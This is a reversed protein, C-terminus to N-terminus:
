RRIGLSKTFVVEDHHLPLMKLKPLCVRQTQLRARWSSTRPRRLHDKASHKWGPSSPVGPFTDFCLCFVHMVELVIDCVRCTEIDRVEYGRWDMSRFPRQASSLCRREKGIWIMKYHRDGSGRLRWTWRWSSAVPAGCVYVHLVWLLPLSSLCVFRSVSYCTVNSCM